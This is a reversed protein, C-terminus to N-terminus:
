GKFGIFNAKNLLLGEEEEFHFGTLEYEKTIPSSCERLFSIANVLLEFTESDVATLEERKGIHSIVSGKIEKPLNPNSNYYVKLM